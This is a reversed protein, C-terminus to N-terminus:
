FYPVSKLINAYVFPRKCIGIKANLSIIDITRKRIM